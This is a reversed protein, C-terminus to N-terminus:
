KSTIIQSSIIVLDNEGAQIEISGSLSAALRAALYPQVTRADLQGVTLETNLAAVDDDRLGAQKGTASITFNTTMGKKDIKVSVSGGRPLAEGGLLVLNLLLQIAAQPMAQQDLESEPWDLDQKRDAFFSASTRSAEGLSTTADFGGAAGFALRYFQLRRSVEEASFALLELSQSRMGPDDDEALLEVGNSVAGVPGTLDHSLRSCLLAALQYDAM